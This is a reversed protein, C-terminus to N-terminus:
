KGAPPGPTSVLDQWRKEAGSLDTPRGGSYFTQQRGAKVQEEAGGSRIKVEGAFVAVRTTDADPADVEARAGAVTATAPGAYVAVGQGKGPSEAMADGRQLTVKGSGHVLLSGPGALYLSAGGLSVRVLGNEQVVCQVGRRVPVSVGVSMGQGALTAQGRLATAHAVPWYNAWLAIGVLLAAIVGTFQGFSKLTSRSPAAVLVGLDYLVILPLAMLVQSVPDPPTIVAAVVFATLIMVKRQRQLAQASVIGWRILCAVVVPTQFAVGMAFTLLFFTSLYSGIMLVPQTGPGALVLLYHFVTPIFVFYGFLVGAAFCLLSPVVLKMVKSREHPFLGPAVFAWTQYILFPATVVLAVIMCAKMQAMVPELYSAFNLTADRDFAAMALAHPRVLIAMIPARVIWAVIAAGIVVLVCYIVRRRLEELHQGLSM